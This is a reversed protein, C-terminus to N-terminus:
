GPWVQPLIQILSRLEIGLSLLQNRSPQGVQQALDELGLYDTADAWQAESPPLLHPAQPNVLRLFCAGTDAGGPVSELGTEIERVRRAVASRFPDWFIQGIRLMDQLCDNIRKRRTEAPLNWRIQSLMAQRSELIPRYDPSQRPPVAALGAFYTLLQQQQWPSLIKGARWLIFRYMQNVMGRPAELRDCANTRWLRQFLEPGFLYQCFHLHSSGLLATQLSDLIQDRIAREERPLASPFMAWRNLETHIDTAPLLGYLADLQLGTIEQAALAADLTQAKRQMAHAQRIVGDALQVLFPSRAELGRSGILAQAVQQLQLTHLQRAYDRDVQPQCPLHSLTVLEDWKRQLKAPEVQALAAFLARQTDLLGDPRAMSGAANGRAIAFLVARDFAEVGQPESAPVADAASRSSSPTSPISAISTDASGSMEDDTEGQTGQGGEMGSASQSKAAQASRQSIPEGEGQGSEHAQRHWGSAVPRGSAAAGALSAPAGAPKNAKRDGARETRETRKRGEPVFAHANPNWKSDTRRSPPTYM